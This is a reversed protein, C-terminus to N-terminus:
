RCHEGLKGRIHEPTGGEFLEQLSPDWIMSIGPQGFKTFYKDWLQKKAQQEEDYFPIDKRKEYFEIFSATNEKKAKAVQWM